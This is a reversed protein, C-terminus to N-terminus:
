QRFLRAHFNQVGFCEVVIKSMFDAARLAGTEHCVEASKGPINCKTRLALYHATGGIDESCGRPERGPIVLKDPRVEDILQLLGEIKNNEIPTVEIYM